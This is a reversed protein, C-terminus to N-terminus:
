GGLLAFHGCCYTLLYTRGGSFFFVNRVSECGFLGFLGVNGVIGYGLRGERSRTSIYPIQYFWYDSSRVRLLFIMRSDSLEVPFPFCAWFKKKQM